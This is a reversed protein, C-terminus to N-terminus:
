KKIFFRHKYDNISASLTPKNWLIWKSLAGATIPNNWNERKRHRKDYLKKRESDKHKTYDSMGRSGFHITKTRGTKVNEFMAMMKKKPNTSKVIKILKYGKWCKKNSVLKKGFNSIRELITNDIFNQKNGLYINFQPFISIEDYFKSSNLSNRYDTQNNINFRHYIANRIEALDTETLHNGQIIMSKIIVLNRRHSPDTIIGGDILYNILEFIQINYENSIESADSDYDTDSDYDSWNNHYENNM